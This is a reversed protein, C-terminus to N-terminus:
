VLIKAATPVYEKRAAVELLSNKVVETISNILAKDNSEPSLLHVNEQNSILAPLITETDFNQFFEMLPVVLTNNRGKTRLDKIQHQITQRTLPPWFQNWSSHFSVRWPVARTYSDYLVYM